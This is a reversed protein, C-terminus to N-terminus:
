KSEEKFPIPLPRYAIATYGLSRQLSWGSGYFTGEDISGDDRTVQWQTDTPPYTSEDGDVFRTWMSNRVALSVLNHSPIAQEEGHKYESHYFCTPCQVFDAYPLDEEDYDHEDICETMVHCESEVGKLLCLPCHEIHEM